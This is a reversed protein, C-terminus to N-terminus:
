EEVTDILGGGLVKDKDYFVASQGPTIAFQATKFIVKIRNKFPLLCAAAEKHNYRIKVKVEVKNKAESTIFYADKVIFERKLVEEKPGVTITNNASDIKSIYLPYKWAIGLGERQGITYYAIGKHEGLAKGNSLRIKGPELEKGSYSKLFKRYDNDPLFCIEQSGPKEAVALHFKRALERVQTKTYGGLPFLAHRLQNQNLRYLFYSQDKYIDKAKKLIYIPIKCGPNPIEEIQAYHGTALYMADLSLAKKLLQGFKIFQNCRVCPNPTRGKLYESCFDSIVKEQMAKQMNLVYHKIGLGHAVKRADEIAQPSCCPPRKRSGEALNFCMTMGIAEYGQKVLLAAAVSSDVGGSMAIIVRKKGMFSFPGLM